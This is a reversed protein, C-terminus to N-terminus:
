RRLGALFFAFSSDFLRDASLAGPTDAGGHLELMAQMMISAVIARAAVASDVDARFEGNAKGEDILRAVLNWSRAPGEALWTHYVKPAATRAEGLMLRITRGWEPTVFRTWATGLLFRIRGSASGGHSAVSREIDDVAARIRQELARVLLDEKNEFYHYITGKTVHAAEAVADLTTAAYGHEAFVRLAADLLADPRAEPQRTWRHAKGM